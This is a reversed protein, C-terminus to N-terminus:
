WPHATRRCASEPIRHASPPCPGTRDFAAQAAGSSPGSRACTSRDILTPRTLVGRAHPGNDPRERGLARAGPAAPATASRPSASRPPAPSTFRPEVAGLADGSVASPVWAAGRYPRTRGGGVDEVSVLPWACSALCFAAHIPRLIRAVLRETLASPPLSPLGGFQAAHVDGRPSTCRTVRVELPLPPYSRREIPPPLHLTDRQQVRARRGPRCRM